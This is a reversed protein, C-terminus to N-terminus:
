LVGFAFLVIAVVVIVAAALAIVRRRRHLRTPPMKRLSRELAWKEDHHISAPVIAFEKVPMGDGFVLEGDGELRPAEIAIEDSPLEDGELLKFGKAVGYPSPPALPQRALRDSVSVRRHRRWWLGVAVLVLVVVLVLLWQTM